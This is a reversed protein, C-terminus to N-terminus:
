EMIKEMVYTSSFNSLCKINNVVNYNICSDYITLEFIYIYNRVIFKQHCKNEKGGKKRIMSKTSFLIISSM